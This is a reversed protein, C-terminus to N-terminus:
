ALKPLNGATPTPCQLTFNAAWTVHDSWPTASTPVRLDSFNQLGMGSGSTTGVVSHLFVSGKSWRVPNDTFKQGPQRLRVAIKRSSRSNQPPPPPLANYTGLAPVRVSLLTWISVLIIIESRSCPIKKGQVNIKRGQNKKLWTLGNYIQLAPIYFHVDESLKSLM